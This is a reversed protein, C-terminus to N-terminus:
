EYSQYVYKKAYYQYEYNGYLGYYGYYSNPKEYANYVIGDINIGLQSSLSIMQRLENIKTLGHRAVILIIDSMSLLIASDSVALLPPTDVIIYDFIEEFLNM